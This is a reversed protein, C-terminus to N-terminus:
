LIVKAAFGPLHTTLPLTTYLCICVEAEATEQLEAEGALTPLPAWSVTKSSSATGSDRKDAIGSLTRLTTSKWSIYILSAVSVCALRASEM